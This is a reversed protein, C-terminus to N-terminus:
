TREDPHFRLPARKAGHHSSAVHGAHGGERMVLLSDYIEVLRGVVASWAYRSEAAVRASRGLAQRLQENELLEILGTALAEPNGPPVLTGTGPLVVEAYGRIQSAVVPTACAFAEALVMGFSERGISPAALIKASSLEAHLDSDSVPGVAEVGDGVAGLRRLLRRAEAPEVGVLRLRAGTKARVRPWARLLVDLGKRTDNRGVFLVQHLRGDPTARVPLGVGNPIVEFPQGLYPEASARAEESVALRYDIRSLIPKFLLRGFPYLRASDSAHCTIVVPCSATAVALVSLLPAYPDHVHVIDFSERELTRRLDRIATPALVICARSGNAPVPVSRGLPIAYPPLADERARRSHILRTVADPPDYGILLRADVRHALLTEAQRRAHEVVGGRFSWSFPVVIGVKAAESM